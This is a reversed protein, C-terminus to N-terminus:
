NKIYWAPMGACVNSLDRKPVTYRHFSLQYIYM